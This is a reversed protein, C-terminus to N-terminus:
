WDQAHIVINENSLIYM